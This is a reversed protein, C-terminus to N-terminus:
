KKMGKILIREGYKTYCNSCFKRAILSHIHEEVGEELYYIEDSAIKSDCNTCVTPFKSQKKVLRTEIEMETVRDG